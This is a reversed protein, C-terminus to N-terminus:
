PTPQSLHIFIGKKNAVMVDPRGDQNLDATSVQTGVGSDDHILHPAFSVHGQTDRQLELWFVIAPADPEVDGTPGHSWFRKGTLIDPLGDNNMDALALAHLQSVRFDSSATNPSPSLIVHQEWQIPANLPRLQKWWVMGYLHCHWSTIVDQLGDGDVDTVLIQAAADAFPHPHFVWPRNPLPHAPQEWWGTTEIVDIRGDGNIDGLGAGHTFRQFRADQNSIAHFTWPQDPAALDPGAFGLFGDICFVLEPHGNGTLDGWVPSENGVVPHALHRTWANGTGAPNEYWYAEAGPFPACLIDIWGDGNLDGTFTLFNDSYDNPDFTQAPRYQHRQAFTPGEFWFPGAVVDLHGDRNFDGYSCGEAYFQDSLQLTRYGKDVPPLTAPTPTEPAPPTAAQTSAPLAAAALQTAHLGDIPRADRGVIRACASWGGGGQTIKLLLQNTGQRLRIPVVDQDVTMGRDVNNAFVMEGNLWAQIGDDSGLLLLADSEEPAIVQARLYALCHDQGPFHAALDVFDAEPLSYWVVEENDQEPGFALEFVADAGVVGERRYPGCVLWNRLFPGEGGTQVLLARARDAISPTGEAALVMAGVEAALRPHEDALAEAIGLAAAAAEKVLLPDELYPLAIRLADRHPIQGLQGLASKKESDRSALPLASKLLALRIDPDPERGATAIASQLALSQATPDPESQARALLPRTPEANPWRGLVRLAERALLPEPDQSAAQLAELAVPGALEALMTLGSARTPPPFSRLRAVVQRASADPDPSARCVDVAARLAAARHAPSAAEAALDLLTPLSEPVALRGLSELAVIRLADQESRAYELLAPAAGPEARVGMARLLEAAEAPEARALRGHMAKQVGPGHLQSLTDRAADREAPEARAAARALAPIMSADNLAALARWAGVRLAPSASETAMRVTAMPQAGLRVQADLVARQAAPALDRLDAICAELWQADRVDHLIHMAMAGRSEDADRLADALTRPGGEPDALISGRWAAAQAPYPLDAQRLADYLGAAGPQDGSQARREACHLLADAASSRVAPDATDLARRLSAEADAGGIRGLAIAAASAAASDPGSLLAALAPTADTDGRWGLSDIIGLRAAGASDALAERLATGAEPVPMAELADRAAHGVRDQQLVEALVPVDAATGYVRLQRCAACKEPAAAASQLVAAPAQEDAARSACVPLPLLGALLIRPLSRINM